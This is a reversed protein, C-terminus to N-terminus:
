SHEDVRYSAVGTSRPLECVIYYYSNQQSKNVDLTINGTNFITRFGTDELVVGDADMSRLKCSVGSNNAIVRITVLKTGNTNLVTDRAIPCEVAPRGDAFSFMRGGSLFFSSAQSVVQPECMMGPYVKGDEAFASANALALGLLGLAFIGKGLKM